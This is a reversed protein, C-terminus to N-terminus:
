VAANESPMTSPNPTELAISQMMKGPPMPTKGQMHAWQLPMETFFGQVSNRLHKHAKLVNHRRGNMFEAQLLPAKTFDREEKKENILPFAHERGTTLREHSDRPVHLFVEHYAKSNNRAMDLIGEITATALPQEINIGNPAIAEKHVGTSLDDEISMGFHKKWINMRLDRAFKRTIVKIGNGMETMAADTKDVVVAAIETDGNGNLSRDNINASGIIAVADDVILLKSHVYIMETVMHSVTHGYNRLNLVTLYKRWEDQKGHRFLIASIESNSSPEKQIGWEAKNKKFVTANIRNVLSNTGRKIGNLAWWAQSSVGAAELQGEPQEPLVIWIHFAREAYIARGVASALESVIHNNAPSAVGYQDTGCNSVFFQNEIYITAQASKICNIMADKISTQHESTWAARASQVIKRRAPNPQKWDDNVFKYYDGWLRLEDKLQQSSASRCIQVIQSGKGAKLPDTLYAPGNAKEFWGADLRADFSNTGTGAFSNWRLVFNVFVDYVSPGKIHLAVDQWPQRPQFNEDFVKEKAALSRIFGPRATKSETLAIEEATMDRAPSIQLNYADNIIRQRPDIVVNFANTDWRGYSIDLGGLYAIQGDVVVFKQHHSFFVNFNDTSFIDARGTNPNCNILEISGKGVRPFKAIIKQTIDDHTDLVASVSDYLMIKVHVGRHEMADCILESFRGPHGAKGRQDLEVDTDLEWDAIMIFSKASRISMAVAALYDRGTTYAHCENGARPFAYPKEGDFYQGTISSITDKTLQATYKDTPM